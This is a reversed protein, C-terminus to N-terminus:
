EVFNYSMTKVIFIFNCENEFDVYFDFNTIHISLWAAIWVICLEFILKSWYKIFHIIQNISSKRILYMSIFNCQIDIWMSISLLLCVFIAILCIVSQFNFFRSLLFFFIFISWLVCCVLTCISFFTTLITIFLVILCCYLWFHFFQSLFLINNLIVDFDFVVINRNCSFNEFFNLTIAICNRVILIFKCVNKNLLFFDFIKHTWAHTVFM